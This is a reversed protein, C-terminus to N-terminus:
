IEKYHVEADRPKFEYYNKDDFWGCRFSELPIKTRFSLGSAYLYLQSSVQKEKEKAAEPKFDLIYILPKGASDYEIQLLDIHGSISTNINKEYFWVPVECAITNTDNILMFDEIIKHRERNRMTSKLAFNTMSTIINNTSYNKEVDIYITQKSCRNEINQLFSPAGLKFRELYSILTPYHKGLLELKGRHYRFNYTIGEKIFMKSFILDRPTYRKIIEGRLKLYPCIDGYEKIWRHVTSKSVKTKFRRNINKTTEELTFGMNYNSLAHYIVRPPYTKWKLKKGELFRKGCTKCLYYQEGKYRGYKIIDRSNCSPCRIDELIERTKKKLGM